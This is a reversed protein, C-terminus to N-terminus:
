KNLYNQKPRRSDFSDTRKGNRGHEFRLLFFRQARVGTRAGRIPRVPRLTVRERVWCGAGIVRVAHPDLRQRCTLAKPALKTFTVRPDFLEDPWGSCVATCRAVSQVGGPYSEHLRPAHASCTHLTSESQVRFTPYCLALLFYIKLM